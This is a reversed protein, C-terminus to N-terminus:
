RRGNRQQQVRDAAEHFPIREKEALALAASHVDSLKGGKAPTTGNASEQEHEIAVTYRLLKRLREVLGRKPDAQDMRALDHFLGAALERAAEPLHSMPRGARPLFENALTRGAGNLHDSASENLEQRIESHIARQAHLDRRTACVTCPCEEVHSM